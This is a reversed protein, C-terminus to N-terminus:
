NTYYPASTNYIKHITNNNNHSPNNNCDGATYNWKDIIVIKKSGSKNTTTHFVFVTIHKFLWAELYFRAFM